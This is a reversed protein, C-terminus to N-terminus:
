QFINLQAPAVQAMMELERRVQCVADALPFIQSTVMMDPDTSIPHWYVGDVNITIEPALTQKGVDMGEKSYGRRALPRIIHDEEPIGLSQHFACIEDLHDTNAPTQTTSLSV